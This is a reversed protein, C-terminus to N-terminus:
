QPEPPRLPEYVERRIQEGRHGWGGDPVEHVLVYTLERVQELGEAEVVARTVGEIMRRKREPSLWGEATYVHVVPM